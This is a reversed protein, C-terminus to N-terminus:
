SDRNISAGTLSCLSVLSEDDYTLEAVTLGGSLTSSLFEPHMQFVPWGRKPQIIVNCYHM